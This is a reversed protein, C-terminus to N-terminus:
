IPHGMVTDEIVEPEARLTIATILGEVVTFDFAIQVEGRVAWALGPRGQIEAALAAKAGGAFFTAIAEAGDRTQAGMAAAAPDAVLVAEPHLVQLLAALDGSKSATLFAAVVQRQRQQEVLDDPPVVADPDAGRLRRRGRSALQRTAEPTRGVVPAIEDFGVGFLDHLVFAIREAPGLRDLMVMVGAGVQDALVAQEAPDLAPDVPVPHDDDLPRERHTRRSRLVDLCVRSVVTTLWGDLNDIVTADSRHLRLWAEQVADEAEVPTGLMRTAVALLHPRAATFRDQVDIDDM